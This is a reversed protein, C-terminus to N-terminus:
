GHIQQGIEQRQAGAKGNLREGNITFQAMHCDIELRNGGVAKTGRTLSRRLADVAVVPRRAATFPDDVAGQGGALGALAAALPNATPAGAAEMGLLRMAAERMSPVPFTIGRGLTYIAVVERKSVLATILLGRQTVGEHAYGNIDGSVLFAHSEGSIFSTQFQRFWAPPNTSSM